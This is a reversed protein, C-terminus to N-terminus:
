EQDGHGQENVQEDNRDGQIHGIADQAVHEAKPRQREDARRRNHDQKNAGGVLGFGFGLRMASTRVILRVLYPWCVSAKNMEARM